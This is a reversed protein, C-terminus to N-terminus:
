NADDVLFLAGNLPHRRAKFFSFKQLLFFFFVDQHDTKPKAQQWTIFRANGPNRLQTHLLTKNLQCIRRTKDAPM